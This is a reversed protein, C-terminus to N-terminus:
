ASSASSHRARPQTLRELGDDAPADPRGEHRLGPAVPNAGHKTMGMREFFRVAKM